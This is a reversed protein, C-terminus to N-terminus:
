TSVLSVGGSLSLSVPRQRRRLVLDQIRERRLLPRDLKRGLGRRGHEAHVTDDHAPRRTPGLYRLLRAVPVLVLTPQPIPLNGFYLRTNICRYLALAEECLSDSAWRKLVGRIGEGDLRCDKM